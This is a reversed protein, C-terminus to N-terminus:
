QAARGAPNGPSATQSQLLAASIDQSKQQSGSSSGFYFGMVNAWGTGLVGLLTFLIDKAPSEVYKGAFILVLLLVFFAGTTVYALIANTFDHSAIQRARAGARDAVVASQVAAADAAPKAAAPQLAAATVGNERLRLQCAQDAAIVALRTAPDSTHATAVLEAASAQADNLLARGLASLAIAAHPGALLDALKPAPDRVLDTLAKLSQDDLDPM